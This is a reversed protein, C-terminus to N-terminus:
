TIRVMIEQNWYSTMEGMMIGDGILKHTSVNKFHPKKRVTLPVQAGRPIFVMDGVNALPPLLCTRGRLTIAFWRGPSVHGVSSIYAKMGGKLFDELTQIDVSTDYRALVQM